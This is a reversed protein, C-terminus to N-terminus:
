KKTNKDPKGGPEGSDTGENLEEECFSGGAGAVNVSEAWDKAQVLQEHDSDLDLLAEVAQILGYFPMATGDPLLVIQDWGVAGHAFNLWAALFQAEAKGLMNAGKPNMIEGAQELSISDGFYSTGFTVIELYRELTAEDLQAKGKDSFQHKWFGQSRPCVADGTILKTLSDSVSGGDDDMVSVEIDYIGPMDFAVYANDEVSFPFTGAPSPDPDSAVGDNFYTKDHGSSWSFKLDDSGPDNASASHTQEHGRRGLYTWQGNIDVAESKELEVSPSLNAVTIFAGAAGSGGDDDVVMITVSYSGDDGYVHSTSFSGGGEQKSATVDENTGDGWDVKASHTDDLGPDTFSAVITAAQGEDIEDGSVTVTPSVNEVNINLEGTTCAEDNDCIVITITYQGDDRYIHDASASGNGESEAINMLVEVGGDGWNVTVKHTDIIGLDSFEVMLEFQSGEDIPEPTPLVLAPAVNSVTVQFSVEDAAEEDDAVNVLVSYVGEDAYVHSIEFLQMGDLELIEPNSGDGWIMEATWESSDPDEFSILQKFTDGEDTVADSVSEIMPPQNGGVKLTFGASGEGGDDDTVTLSIDYAGPKDFEHDIKPGDSTVPGSDDDFGWIFEHMDLAGPDSVIAEFTVTEGPAPLYPYSFLDVEPPANTVDVTLSDSAPLGHVDTVTLTVTFSGNDGYIHSPSLTDDVLTGDGLDWLLTHGAPSDPDLYSGSFFAFDGETLSLDVGAEVTPPHPQPYRLRFPATGPLEGTRGVQISYPYYAGDIQLAITLETASPDLGFIVKDQGNTETANITLRNGETYANDEGEFDATEILDIVGDAEIFGEFRHSQGDGIWVLNWHYTEMDLWLNYGRSAGPLIDPEDEPALDFSPPETPLNGFYALGADYAALWLGGRGDVLVDLVDDEPLPSNGSHYSSWAGGSSLRSIGGGLTGFWHNGASDLFVSQVFNSSLGSNAQDYVTWNNNSSNLVAVGSGDTAFWKGGSGDIAIDTIARNTVDGAITLPDPITLPPEFVTWLGAHRAAVGYGLTGVWATGDSQLAAAFFDDYPLSTDASTDVSWSGGSRLAVGGGLTGLLVEGGFVDLAWANVDAPAPPSLDAFSTGDGSRAVSGDLLAVWIDGNTDVAIDLVDEGPLGDAVSFAREFGHSLDWLSLGGQEHGVWLSDGEMALRQVPAETEWIIWAPSDAQLRPAAASASDSNNMPGSATVVVPAVLGFLLIVLTFYTYSSRNM